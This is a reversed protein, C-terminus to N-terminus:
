HAARPPEVHFKGDVDLIIVYRAGCQGCGDAWGSGPNMMDPAGEWWHDDEYGCEPCVPNKTGISVIPEPLTFEDASSIVLLTNQVTCPRIFLM